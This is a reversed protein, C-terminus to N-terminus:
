SFQHDVCLPQADQALHGPVPAEASGRGHQAEGGRRHRLLDGGQLAADSGGDDLAAGATDHQGFRAAKEHLRGLGDEGLQMVRLLLDSPQRGAPRPQRDGREGAASAVEQRPREGPEDGLPGIHLDVHHLPFRLVAHRHDPLPLGIEREGVVEVSRKRDPGAISGAQHPRRQHLVAHRDDQRRPM